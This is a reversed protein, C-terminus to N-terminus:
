MDEGPRGRRGHPEVAQHRSPGCRRCPRRALGEATQAAYDVVQAIPLRGRERLLDRLNRGRLHEMVLYPRGDHEGTDFVVAIAPHASRAAAIGERRFRALAAAAAEEDTAADILLLKVAVPRDLRGDHALWVEGMGGRGLATRLEYRGSLVLGPRM